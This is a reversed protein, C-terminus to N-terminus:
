LRWTGSYRRSNEYGKFFWKGELRMNGELSTSEHVLDYWRGNQKARFRDDYDKYFWMFIENNKSMISGDGSWTGFCDKGRLKIETLLPKKEKTITVSSIHV